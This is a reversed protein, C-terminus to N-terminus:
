VPQQARWMTSVDPAGSPLALSGTPQFGLRMYLALNAPNSSELYAATGDADCSHVRFSVLETGVGHGQLEPEVGVYQLYWHPERPHVRLASGVYTGGLGLRGRLAVAYGPVAVLQRTLSPIYRGPPPFLIAGGVIRGNAWAVDIIHVRPAEHRLVNSFFLPLRRQRARSTPLMWTFVPDGVFARAMVRALPAFDQRLAVHVGIEQAPVHGVSHSCSPVSADCRSTDRRWRDPGM